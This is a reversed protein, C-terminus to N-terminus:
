PGCTAARRAGAAAEGASAWTAAGSAPEGATTDTAADAATRAGRGSCRWSADAAAGGATSPRGLPPRVAAPAVHFLELRDLDRSVHRRVRGHGLVLHDHLAAGRGLLETRLEVAGGAVDDAEEEELALHHRRGLREGVVHDLQEGGLDARPDLQDVRALLLLGRELGAVERFVVSLGLLRARQPRPRRDDGDHAVDVVALRQQEVPDALGFTTAPSAPPMVWCM